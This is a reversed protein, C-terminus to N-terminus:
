IGPELIQTGKTRAIQRKTNIRQNKNNPEQFKQRKAKILQWGTKINAIVFPKNKIHLFYYEWSIAM